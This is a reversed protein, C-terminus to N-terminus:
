EPKGEEIWKNVVKTLLEGEQSALEEILNLLEETDESWADDDIIDLAYLLDVLVYHISVKLRSKLPSKKIREKLESM